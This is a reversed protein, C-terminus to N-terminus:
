FRNYPMPAPAVHPKRARSSAKTTATPKEATAAATQTTQKDTTITMM